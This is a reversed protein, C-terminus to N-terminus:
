CHDYEDSYIFAWHMRSDHSDRISQVQETRGIFKIGPVSWIQYFKREFVETSQAGSGPTTNDDRKQVSKMSKTRCLFTSILKEVNPNLKAYNFNL